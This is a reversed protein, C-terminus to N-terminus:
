QKVAHVYFFIAAHKRWRNLWIYKRCMAKTPRPEKIQKIVFGHDLLENLYTSLTRYYSPVAFPKINDPVPGKTFKWYAINPKGEFYDSVKLALLKGQENKMWGMGKTLFCPHTISYFLDGKKKLIRYFEKIAGRYNSGDMLAMFSVITDFSNDPLFPLNSFSAIRYHVGLPKKREEKEASRIMRKSIDVGFVKAGQRAIIRTNYGEGCGADLVRKGKLKGIFKLFMPNNFRERYADWRMRVRRIWSRANKDWYKAIDKDTFKKHKMM